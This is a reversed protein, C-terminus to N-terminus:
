RRADLDDLAKSVAKLLEPRAFCDVPWRLLGALLGQAATVDRLRAAALRVIYLHDARRGPWAPQPPQSIGLLPIVPRDAPSNSAGGFIPHQGSLNFHRDLWGLMNRRGLHFDHVRYRRDLFGLFAGFGSTCLADAGWLRDGDGAARAQMAPSPGLPRRAATILHRSEVDDASALLLESTSYRGHAVLAKVLGGFGAFMPLRDPPASYEAFAALPDLMLICGDVDASGRKFSGLLGTMRDHVLQFPSNNLAGGDVAFYEYDQQAFGPPWRPKLPVVRAWKGGGAPLAVARWEYHRAPRSLRVPPFGV